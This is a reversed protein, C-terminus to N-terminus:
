ILSAEDDIRTNRSITSGLYAFTEVNSQAGKVNIRPANYEASPPPQHMFDDIRTNRSITSGLYAFTEVNKLAGNVNIRPANYEVSPPPQHMVVRAMSMSEPLM